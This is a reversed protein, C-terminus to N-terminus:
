FSDCGNGDPLLTVLIFLGSNVGWFSRLFSVFFPGVKLLMITLHGELGKRIGQRRGGSQHRGQAQRRGGGRGNQMRESRTERDRQRETETEWGRQTEERETERRRQQSADGDRHRKGVKARQEKKRGERAERIAM